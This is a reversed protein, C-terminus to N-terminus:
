KGSPILLKMGILELRADDQNKTNSSVRYELIRFISKNECMASLQYNQGVRNNSIQYISSSQSLTLNDFAGKTSEGTVMQSTSSNRSLSKHEVGSEYEYKM